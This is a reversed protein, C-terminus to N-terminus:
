AHRFDEVSPVANVHECCTNCVYMCIYMCVYMCVYMSCVYMCVCVYICVYMCVYMCVYACMCEYVRVSTEQGSQAEFAVLASGIVYV